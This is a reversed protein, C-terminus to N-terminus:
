SKHDSVCAANNTTNNHNWMSPKITTAPQQNMRDIEAQLLQVQATLAERESDIQHSPPPKPVNPPSHSATDRTAAMSMMLQMMQMMQKNNEMQMAMYTDLKDHAVGPDPVPERTIRGNSTNKIPPTDLASRKESEVLKFMKEAQQTVEALSRETSV